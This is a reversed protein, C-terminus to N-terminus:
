CGMCKNVKLVFSYTDSIKKPETIWVVSFTMKPWGSIFIQKTAERGAGSFWFQFDNQISPFVKNSGLYCTPYIKHQKVLASTIQSSLVSNVLSIWEFFHIYWTTNNQKGGKEQAKFGLKQLLKQPLPLHPNLDGRESKLYLNEIETDHRNTCKLKAQQLQEM